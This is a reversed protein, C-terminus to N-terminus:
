DPLVPWNPPSLLALCRRSEQNRTFEGALKSICLIDYKTGGFHELIMQIILLDSNTRYLRQDISSIFNSSRVRVATILLYFIMRSMERQSSQELKAVIIDM